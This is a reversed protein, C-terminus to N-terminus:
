CILEVFEEWYSFVVEEKKTLFCLLKGERAGLYLFIDNEFIWYNDPNTKKYLKGPTLM